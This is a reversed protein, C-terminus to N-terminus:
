CQAAGNDNEEEDQNAHYSIGAQATLCQPTCWLYDAPLLTCKYGRSLKFADTAYGVVPVILCNHFQEGAEVMESHINFM